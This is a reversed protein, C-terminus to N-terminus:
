IECDGFHTIKCVHACLFVCMCVCVCVCVGRLRAHHMGKIHSDADEPAIDRGRKGIVVGLEVEHHFSKSVSPMLIPGTGKVCLLNNHLACM